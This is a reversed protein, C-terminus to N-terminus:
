LFGLIVWELKTGERNQAVHSKFFGRRVVNTAPKYPKPTGIPTCRLVGHTRRRPRPTRSRHSPIAGHPSLFGQRVIHIPLQSVVKTSWFLASSSWTLATALVYDIKKPNQPNSANSATNTRKEPKKSEPQLRITTHTHIIKGHSIIHLHNPIPQRIKANVLCCARSTSVTLARVSSGRM